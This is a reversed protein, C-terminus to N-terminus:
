DYCFFRVYGCGNASLHAHRPKDTNREWRFFCCWGTPTGAVDEEPLLIRHSRCQPGPGSYERHYQVSPSRCDQSHGGIRLSEQLAALRHQASQQLWLHLRCSEAANNWHDRGHEPPVRAGEIRSRWGCRARGVDPYRCEAGPQISHPWMRPFADASLKGGPNM